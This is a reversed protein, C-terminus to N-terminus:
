RSRDWAKEMRQRAGELRNELFRIRRERMRIQKQKPDAVEAAWSPKLAPRAAKPDNARDAVLRDREARTTAKNQPARAAASAFIDRTPKKAM